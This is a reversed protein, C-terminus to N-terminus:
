LYVTNMIRQQTDKNITKFHRSEFFALQFLREDLIELKLSNILQLMNPRYSCM